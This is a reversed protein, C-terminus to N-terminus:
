CGKFPMVYLTNGSVSVHFGYNGTLPVALPHWTKGMDASRYIGDARGCILFEGMQKISLITSSTPLMGIKRMFLRESSPLLDGGVANWTQGKDTSIYLRNIRAEKSTVIAAFGGTIPEVAVGVGGEGLVPAWNLGNDTSRLVGEKYTALLVGNQEALKMLGGGIHVRKWTKGYDATRFLNNSAGIFVIGAATEFVTNVQREKYSNYMWDITKDLSVAQEQFNTYIPAWDNTGNIKRMFQGRFDFAFMKNNGPSLYRQKGPFGEKTWDSNAKSAENYYVGDGARLFLGNDSAILSEGRVGDKQLNEPLGKSIDHWTQGGDTSKFVISAVGAPKGTRNGEKEKRVFSNLLFLGLMIVPIFVFLKKM